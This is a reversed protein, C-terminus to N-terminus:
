RRRFWGRRVIVVQLPKRFNQARQMEQAAEAVAILPLFPTGFCLRQNIGFRGGSVDDQDVAEEFIDRLYARM